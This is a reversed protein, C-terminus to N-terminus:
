YRRRILLSSYDLTSATSATTKNLTANTIKIKLVTSQSIEFEASASDCSINGVNQSSYYDMAGVTGILAGDLEIRYECKSLYGDTRDASLSCEILYQGRPLTLEDANISAGSLATIANFSLYDNTNLYGSSKSLYYQGLALSSTSPKYSM